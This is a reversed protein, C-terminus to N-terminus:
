PKAGKCQQQIQVPVDPHWGGHLMRCDYIHGGIVLSNNAMWLMVSVVIVIWGVTLALRTWFRVLNRKRKIQRNMHYM